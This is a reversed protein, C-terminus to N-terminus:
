YYEGQAARDASAKNVVVGLLNFRSLHRQAEEIERKTSSGSGVVLLVCDVRPLVAIVDDVAAVPPLDMVIIREAYDGRLTTLISGVRDSALMEAAGPVKRQTPLVLFRPIGAHVIASHLDAEGALVENLSVGQPLGLYSAVQPRRLDFDVLLATKSPHHAISLALNIAVVSKGSQMSPSTVAISRWGNEEMKQLVQTRLLDFARRLPNAQELTVIRHRELHAPDLPLLDVPIGLDAATAPPDGPARLPDGTPAAWASPRAQAGAQQRAREIALKIREM